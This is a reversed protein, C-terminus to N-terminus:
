GKLQVEVLAPEGCSVAEKLARYFSADSDVKWFRVGFAKAFLGFDPNRLDVGLFRKEYRREQIAKILTLCGDNILIVVIPLKEQVASALEM